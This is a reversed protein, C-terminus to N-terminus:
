KENTEEDLSACEDIDLCSKADTESLRYGGPCECRMGGKCTKQDARLWYGAICKCEASGPLNFVTILADLTPCRKTRANKWMLARKTTVPTWPTAPLAHVTPRDIWISASIRFGFNNSTSCEDIDRCKKGDNTM